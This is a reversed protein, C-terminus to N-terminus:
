QIKLPFFRFDKGVATSTLFIALLFDRDNERSSSCFSFLKLLLIELHSMFTLFSGVNIECYSANKKM